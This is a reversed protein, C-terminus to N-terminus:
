AFLIPQSINYKQYMYRRQLGIAVRCKSLYICSGVGFQNVSVAAKLRARWLFYSAQSLRTSHSSSCLDVEDDSIIACGENNAAVFNM